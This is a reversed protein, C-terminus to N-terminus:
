RIGWDALELRLRGAKELTKRSILGGHNAEEDALATVLEAAVSLLVPVAAALKIASVIGEAETINAPELRLERGNADDLISAGDPSPLLSAPHVDLDGVFRSFRRRHFAQTMM